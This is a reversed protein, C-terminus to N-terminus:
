VCQEQIGTAQKAPPTWACHCSKFSPPRLSARAAIRACGLLFGCSPGKLSGSSMFRLEPISTDSQHAPGQGAGVTGHLSHLVEVLLAPGLRLELLLWSPGWQVAVGVAADMEQVDGGAVPVQKAGVGAQAGAEAEGVAGVM